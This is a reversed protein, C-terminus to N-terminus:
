ARPPLSNLGQQRFILLVIIVVAVTAVLGWIRYDMALDM